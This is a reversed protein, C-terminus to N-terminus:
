IFYPAYLDGLVIGASCQITSQNWLRTICFTPLLRYFCPMGKHVVKRFSTGRSKQELFIYPSLLPAINVSIGFVIWLVSVICNDDPRHKITLLMNSAYSISYRMRYKKEFIQVAPFMKFTNLSNGSTLTRWVM